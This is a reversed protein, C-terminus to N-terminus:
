KLAEALTPLQAAKRKADIAALDADSLDVTSWRFGEITKEPLGNKAELKKPYVEAAIRMFALPQTKEDLMKAFWLTQAPEGTYITKVGNEEVAISNINEEQEGLAILMMTKFRGGGNKKADDLKEVYSVTEGVRTPENSQTKESSLPKLEAIASTGKFGQKVKAAQIEFVYRGFKAYQYGFTVKGAALKALAPNSITPNSM